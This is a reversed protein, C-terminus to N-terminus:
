EEFFGVASMQFRTINGSSLNDMISVTIDDAQPFTGAKRLFFPRAFVATLCDSGASEIRQFKSGTGFSFAHFIDDNLKLSEDYELNGDSQVEVHVGNTLEAVKLFTGTGCAITQSTAEIRLETVVFDRTNDFSASNSLKFVVPTVSGNINMASNNDSTELLIRKPPRGSAIVGIEGVVSITGKTCDRPHPFLALALSQDKITDWVLTFTLAGTSSVIVDGSDPRITQVLIAEVCVINSDRPVSARYLASFNGDANLNDRILGAIDHGDTESATKTSTVDVSDDPIQFRITDGNSGIALIKLATFPFVAEGFLSEITATANTQLKRVGGELFVDATHVGDHGQVGAKLADNRNGIIINDTNGRLKLIGRVIKVISDIM